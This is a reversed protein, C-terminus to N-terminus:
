FGIYVVKTNEGNFDGIFLNNYVLINVSQVEFYDLDNLKLNQSSGHECVALLLVVFSILKLHKM